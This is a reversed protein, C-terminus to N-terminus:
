VEMCILSFYERFCKSYEFFNHYTGDGRRFIIFIDQFVKKQELADEPGVYPDNVNVHLM